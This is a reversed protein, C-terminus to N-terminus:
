NDNIHKLERLPEKGQKFKTCKVSKANNINDTHYMGKEVHYKKRNVKTNRRTKGKKNTKKRKRSKKKKKRYKVKRSYYL